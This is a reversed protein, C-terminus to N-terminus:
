RLAMYISVVTTNDQRTFEVSDALQGVTFLGFGGRPGGQLPRLHAYRDVGGPGSDTVRLACSDAEHWVEFVTPSAGHVVANTVVESAVLQLDVILERSVRWGLLHEVAARALAPTPDRIILDSRRTPFPVVLDAPSDNGDRRAWDGILSQHTRGVDHRLHAPTANADYLCVARLPRHVFIRNLAEEYQIWRVDHGDARLPIAGISWASAAGSAEAATVFRNLAAMARGPVADWAGAPDFTFRECISGFDTRIQAEAADNQCILVAAKEAAARQLSSGLRRSLDNAERYLVASHECRPADM